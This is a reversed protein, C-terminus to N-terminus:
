FGKFCLPIQLIGADIQSRGVARDESGVVGMRVARVRADSECPFGFLESQLAGYHKKSNM